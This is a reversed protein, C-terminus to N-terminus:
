IKGRSLKEGVKKEGIPNLAFLNEYVSGPEPLFPMQGQINYQCAGSGIGPSQSRTHIIHFSKTLIISIRTSLAGLRSICQIINYLIAYLLPMIYSISVYVLVYVQIGGHVLVVVSM